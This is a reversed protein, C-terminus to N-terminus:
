GEQPRKKNLRAVYEKIKTEDDPHAWLNRIEKLGQKKMRERFGNQREAGSKASMKQLRAVSLGKMRRRGM